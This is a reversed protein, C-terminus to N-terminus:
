LAEEYGDLEARISLLWGYCGGSPTLPSLRDFYVGGCLSFIDGARAMNWLHNWLAWADASCQEAVAELVGVPPPVEALEACRTITVNFGVYNKRFSQQHRTGAGMELPRTPAEQIPAAGVTLQDCCDL